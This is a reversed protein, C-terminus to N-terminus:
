GDSQEETQVEAYVDIQEESSMDIQEEAQEDVQEREIYKDLLMAVVKSAAEEVAPTKKETMETAKQAGKKFIVQARNQAATHANALATKREEKCERETAKKKAEADAEAKLVIDKGRQYADKQLKEAKQEAERVDKLVSDIM